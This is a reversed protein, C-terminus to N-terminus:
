QLDAERKKVLFFLKGKQKMYGAAVEAYNGAGWFVDVRGPTKIAGGTDQNLVLRSFQEWGKVQGDSGLAPKETCILGLAGKPFIQVDTAISRGPTVIEGLCGFPGDEILEFFTYSTNYCLVRELEDPHQRLYSKLTYLSVQERPLKGENIFLNGISRYPHGNASHYQLFFRKGAELQIMGSGQIQLFFMDVPDTVYGIECNKGQLAGLCDIDHRTFYPVLKGKSVRGMLSKSPLDSGFERLDVSILDDPRRYVPTKYRETKVSSFELLPVYYGTFLVDGSGDSGTSRYFTFKERILRSFEAATPHAGIVDILTKISEIMDSRSYEDRGFQFSRSEPLKQLYHLSAQAATRLSELDMDDNFRPVDHDAVQVLPPQPAPPLAGKCGPLILLISVIAAVNVWRRSNVSYNM